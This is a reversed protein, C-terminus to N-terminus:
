PFLVHHRLSVKETTRRPNATEDQSGHKEQKPLESVAEVRKEVTNPIVKEGPKIRQLGSVVVRDEATIGSEIVRMREDLQGVKVRRYIVEDKSGLVYLYKQGQDSAVAEEPVLTAPRPAGIPIRIRVFLGPSLLFAKNPILARVRLTGTNANLRNDVFNIVGRMSFGEEDALGVLVEVESERASKVKGEAVLRRIRLLTREDVDFYAYLPDLAVITTLPTENANVLNGPDVLRRSIRGSFPATVRTFGLDLRALSLSAAASSVAAEAEARDFTVRDAEEISIAKQKLLKTSRQYESDLRNLRAKAQALNADTREVEAQYTRPDIEFLLDGEEVDAGEKFYAKDLYGTVRSRIEVQNVAETRGTFDEYETVERVIPREVVVEALRTPAMPPPQRGCGLVVLPILVHWFAGRVPKVVRGPCSGRELFRKPDIGQLAYPM